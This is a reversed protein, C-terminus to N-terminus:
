SNRIEILAFEMAGDVIQGTRRFVGILMPQTEDRSTLIGRPDFAEFPSPLILRDERSQTINTMSKLLGHFATLIILM